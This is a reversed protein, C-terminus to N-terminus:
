ARARRSGPRAARARRDGVARSRLRSLHVPTIGLYSAVIRQPIRTELGPFHDRFRAYRGAADLALLEWERESKALYLRLVMSQFFRMWAEQEKALEVLRAFDFVAVRAPTLAEISARSPRRSNLDALSGILEGEVSFSKTRESGDGLVWYERLVGELVVFARTALEGGRLLLVGRRLTRVRGEALVVELDVDALPAVARLAAAIATRQAATPRAAVDRPPAM